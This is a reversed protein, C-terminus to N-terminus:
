RNMWATLLQKRSMFYYGGSGVLSSLGLFQLFTETPGTSPLETTTTVVPAEVCEPSNKPLHEKGPIPCNEVCEPSNPPLHQKGPIPCFPQNAPIVSFPAKCAPATVTKETNNVNVTVYAQVTYAGPKEQTYTANRSRSLETGNSDRIVYTIYKLTAGKLVYKATFSFSTRSLAKVTLSECVYSPQTPEPAVTFSATCQSGDRAGLSTNVVLEARYTGPTLATTTYGAQQNSTEVRNRDVIKGSNDKVVFNYANITAGNKAEAQGTLRFTTRSVPTAALAKCLASPEPEPQKPQASVPNGCPKMIAFLFKGNADFKVMATQDDAMRSTPHRAANTGAIPTGGSMNRIATVAGTAVVRGGVTVDGNRHVVGERIDGGIDARSIGFSQFVVSGQDYKNRAEEASMTGCHIIAYQDCDRTSDLAQVSTQYVIGAMVVAFAAMLLTKLKM